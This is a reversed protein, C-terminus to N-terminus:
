RVNPVSSRPVGSVTSPRDDPLSRAMCCALYKGPLLCIEESNKHLSISLYIRVVVSVNTNFYNGNQPIYYFLFVKEIYPISTLWSFIDQCDETAGMFSSVWSIVIRLGCIGCYMCVPANIPGNIYRETYQPRLNVPNHTESKMATVSSQCSM